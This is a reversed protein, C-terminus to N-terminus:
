KDHCNKKDVQQRSLQKIAKNHQQRTVRSLPGDHSQAVEDHGTPVQDEDIQDLVKQRLQPPVVVHRGGPRVDLARGGDASLGSVPDTLRGSLFRRKQRRRDSAFHSRQTRGCSLIQLLDDRQHHLETVDVIVLESLVADLGKLGEDPPLVCM